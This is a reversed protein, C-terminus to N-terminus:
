VAELLILFRGTRSQAGGSVERIKFLVSPLNALGNNDLHKQAREVCCQSDPVLKRRAPSHANGKVSVLRACPVPSPRGLDRKQSKPGGPSPWDRM